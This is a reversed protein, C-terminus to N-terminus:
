SSFWVYLRFRRLLENAGPSSLGLFLLSKQCKPKQVITNVSFGSVHFPHHHHHPPPNWLLVAGELLLKIQLLHHCDSPCQHTQGPKLSCHGFALSSSGSSPSLISCQPTRQVNNIDNGCAKLNGKWSVCTVTCVCLCWIM